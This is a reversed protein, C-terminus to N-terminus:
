IHEKVNSILFQLNKQNNWQNIQLSGCMDVYVNNKLVDEQEGDFNFLICVLGKFGDLDVTIRMHNMFKGMYRINTIKCDRLLFYPKENCCGFPELQELEEVLRISLDSGHLQLDYNIEPVFVDPSLGKMYNETNALLQDFKSKEITFGCAGKHGGFKVFLDKSISLVEYIDVKEISRCTAKLTGDGNDTLIAVPKYCYDKMKGAVIGAIGEHADEMVIMPFQKDKYYQDYLNTAQGYTYEQIDKRKTNLGVLYDAIEDARNPNEELFLKIGINANEMRGAANLHPVISFSVQESGIHSTDKLIKNKLATIGQNKTKELQRMGYKVITRNEGVLPVIDGITGIAVVDLVKRIIDYPLDATRQLAQALKFAIGCGALHKFPYTCEEQKANIILCDPKDKPVSHHDTVIIDLGISKAYAVEDVSTIGCDVTIVLDTGQDKIKKLAKKNLGYGDEFRSPVFYIVKDTLEELVTKLITVSTVGDADYDGFICIQGGSNVTSLILDVGEKMNLLLFPDYTLKPKPSLFEEIEKEEVIGRQNLIKRIVSDINM